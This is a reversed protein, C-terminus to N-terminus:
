IYGQIDSLLFQKHLRSKCFEYFDIEYSFNRKLYNWIINQLKPRQMNRNMSWGRTKAENMLYDYKNTANRFYLPVFKEFVVLSQAIEELVGVVAFYKEVNEKARQTAKSSAFIQCDDDNGCFFQVQSYHLREQTVDNYGGITQGLVYHFLGHSVRFKIKIAYYTSHINLILINQIGIIFSCEEEKYIVCDEFSRKIDKINSLDSGHFHLSSRVFYYWSALRDIPNRVLSIYIPSKTNFEYTDLFFM